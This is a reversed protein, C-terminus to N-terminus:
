RALCEVIPPRLCRLPDQALAGRDVLWRMFARLDRLYYNSTAPSLGADRRQALHQEVAAPTIDSLTIAGLEQVVSRVRAVTEAVYRPVNGRSALSQEFDTVLQLIPRGAAAVDRGLLGVEVMKLRLRDPIGELWESLLRDPGKGASRLDALRELKRGLEETAGRDPFGRWRRRVGRHDAFDVYWAAYSKTAGRQGKRTPKYTRM